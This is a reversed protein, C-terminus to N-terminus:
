RQRPLHTLLYLTLGLLFAIFFLLALDPTV